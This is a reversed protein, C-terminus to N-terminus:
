DRRLELLSLAEIPHDAIVLTDRPPQGGAAGTTTEVLPFSAGLGGGYEPFRRPYVCAGLTQGDRQCLFVAQGDQDAYLRGTQHLSDVAAAPLRRDHLLAARVQPWRGPDPPPPQWSFSPQLPATMRGLAHRGEQPGRLHQRLFDAADEEGLGFTHRVFDVAGVGESPVGGRTLSFAQHSVRLREGHLRWIGPGEREPIGGFSRLVGSLPLARVRDASTLERPLPRGLGLVQEQLDRVQYQLCDNRIRLRAVEGELAVHDAVLRELHPRLQALIERSEGLAYQAPDLVVRPPPRITVADRVRRLLEEARERAPHSDPQTRGDM